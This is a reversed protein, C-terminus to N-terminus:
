SRPLEGKDISKNGDIRMIAVENDKHILDYLM